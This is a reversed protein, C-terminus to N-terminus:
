IMNGAGDLLVGREAGILLGSNDITNDGGSMYIAEYEGSVTGGNTVSNAPGVLSIGSGLNGIVNGSTGVVVQNNGSTGSAGVELGYDSGWLTGLIQAFVSGGTSYAGNDNGATGGAVTVGAAVFLDDYAVMDVGDTGTNIINTTEFYTTMDAEGGHKRLKCRRSAPPLLM